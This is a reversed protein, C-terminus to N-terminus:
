SSEPPRTRSRLPNGPQAVNFVAIPISLPSAVAPVLAMLAVDVFPHPLSPGLTNVSCTFPAGGATVTLALASDALWTWHAPEGSKKVVERWDVYGRRLVVGSLWEVAVAVFM